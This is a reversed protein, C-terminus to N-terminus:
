NKMTKLVDKRVWRRSYCLEVFNPNLVDYVKEKKRYKFFLPQPNGKKEQENELCFFPASKLIAKKEEFISAQM